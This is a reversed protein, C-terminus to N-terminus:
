LFEARSTPNSIISYRLGGCTPCHSFLRATRRSAGAANCREICVPCQDGLHPDDTTAMTRARMASVKPLGGIPATKVLAERMKRAIELREDHEPKTDSSGGGREIAYKFVIPIEDPRNLVSLTVGTIVYWSHYPLHPCSRISSLLAPSIIAPLTVPSM